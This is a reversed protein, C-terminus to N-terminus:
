ARPIDMPKSVVRTGQFFGLHSVGLPLITAQQHFPQPSVSTVVSTALAPLRMPESILNPTAPALWEFLHLCLFCWFFDFVFQDRDTKLVKATRHLQKSNSLIEFHIITSTMNSYLFGLANRSHDNQGLVELGQTWRFTGGDVGHGTPQFEIHISASKM